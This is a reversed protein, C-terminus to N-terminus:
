TKRNKVLSALPVIGAMLCLTIILARHLGVVTQGGAVLSGFLAVGIVSGTQRATNLVGSAVGSMSADVSGLLTSTMIPVILGLGFGVALLQLLLSVYPTTQSVGLLGASGTIVFLAGTIIARQAGIAKMVRAASLNAALVVMTMPAFALGTQIASLHQSKQFFLSLVFILGYFSVNIMLGVSSMVSFVNSRFLRLPLMPAAQKLELLVFVVGAFAAFAYGGIVWFSMLGFSGVGITAAALAVLALIAAIQGVVDLGRGPSRSTEDTYRVALWTGLLGIPVNIFFIARWSFLAILVGGVLPGAALAVSAGAAWLGIAKTRATTTRYSHNLLTLSCPVLIAAGIGQMARAIILIGLSPAIGCVVSASTFIGFGALFLRRAGIRDGLSGATLILSAFAITYASVVWQLASVSGGFSSGIAKIAVNVVSVDLQVVAFGLSMAALMLGQRRRLRIEGQKRKERTAALIPKEIM